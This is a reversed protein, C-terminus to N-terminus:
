KTEKLAQIFGILRNASSILDRTEERSTPNDLQYEVEEALEILKKTYEPTM